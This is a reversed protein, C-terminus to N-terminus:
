RTAAAVLHGLDAAVAAAEPDDPGIDDVSPTVGSLVLGFPVGLRQALLGDTSPRDGVVAAVDGARRRILEAMPQHPKGAVVPRTGSATAVAALLSGAGPLLGDPTPFTADENTGVLRAGARVAGSAAALRDFDFDRTWGVVVADAPGEAVITMGAHELAEAAGAGGLLLVSSGPDLLGTAAQPSSVVDSPDAEIGAHALRDVLEGVTPSANNTAFLVRSGRQRLAEVAGASGPIAEGSLWVVGDLDLVWTGPGPPWPGTATPSGATMAETTVATTAAM